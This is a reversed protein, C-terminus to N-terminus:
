KEERSLATVYGSLVGHAFSYDSPPKINAASGHWDISTAVELRRVFATQDAVRNERQAQTLRTKRM